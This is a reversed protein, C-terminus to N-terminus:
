FLIWHLLIDVLIFMKLIPVRNFFIDTGYLLQFLSFQKTDIDCEIMRWSPKKAMVVLKGSQLVSFPRVIIVGPLDLDVM